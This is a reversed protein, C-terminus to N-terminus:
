KIRQAVCVANEAMPTIVMKGNTSLSITGDSKRYCLDMITGNELVIAVSDADLEIDTTGSRAIYMAM